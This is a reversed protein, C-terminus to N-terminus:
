LEITPLIIKKEKKEKKRKKQPTLALFKEM